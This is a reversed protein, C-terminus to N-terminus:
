CSHRTRSPSAEAAKLELLVKGNVLVDAFYEGVPADGYYVTVAKQLEVELGMRRLEIALANQYVKELFGYGLVNYVRYFAKLVQDTIEAHKLLPSSM